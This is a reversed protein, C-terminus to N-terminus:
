TPKVAQVYLSYPVRRPSVPDIVTLFSVLGFCAIAMPLGCETEVARIMKNCAQRIPGGIGILLNIKFGLPELLERFSTETYGPRVHGGQEKVDLVHKRNDPHDANPCCLHLIGGPRLNRWFASCVAKDDRIHELVESCIIQDFIIALSDIDYVNHVRFCLREEPIGLGRNFLRRNREVEAEKISIGITHNGLVYSKYSLMGNGCGADLVWSSRGPEPRRFYRPLIRYRLRAHLNIGPFMCWKVADRFGIM